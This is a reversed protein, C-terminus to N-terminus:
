NLSGIPPQKPVDNWERGDLTRGSFRKGVKFVTLLYGSPDCLFFHGPCFEGEVGIQAYRSPNEPPAGWRAEYDLIHNDDPLWEGWGKFFFPKKWQECQDRITRVWDPHMPRADAGTEGGVIIWDLTPSQQYTEGGCKSCESIPNEGHLLGCDPCEDPNDNNEDFEACTPCVLEPNSERHDCSECQFYYYNLYQSIDIAELMPEISVFRNEIPTALLIPIKEDAEKQTCVTVGAWFNPKPEGNRIFFERM